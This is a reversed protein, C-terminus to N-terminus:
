LKIIINSIIINIIWNYKFLIHNKKNHINRWAFYEMLQILSITYVLLLTSLPYKNIIIAVIGLITGFIFTNLSVEANWCM